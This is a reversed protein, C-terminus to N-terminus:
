GTHIVPWRPSCLRSVQSCGNALVFSLTTCLTPSVIGGTEIKWFTSTLNIIDSHAVTSCQTGGTYAACSDLCNLFECLLGTQTTDFGICRPTVPGADMENTNVAGDIMVYEDKEFSSVDDDTDIDMAVVEDDRPFGTRRMSLQPARVDLEGREEDHSSSESEGDVIDDM